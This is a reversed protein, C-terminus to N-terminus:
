RFRPTDIVSHTVDFFYNFEFAFAPTASIAACILAIALVM